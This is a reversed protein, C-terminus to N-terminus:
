TELNRSLDYSYTTQNGNFDTRSAVNGNADYTLASASAGCGSGGPQSQGTSKVVGLITQFNYTRATNLADTVTTTGDANYTLSVQEAGGAHETSIARGQSDYSYTAYRSGNEDTIGTLAHPFGTNEYHYTKSTGDPYTVSALNNNTDYAYRYVGGAPDTLTSIRSNSDYTFNLQRGLPDTVQILLDTALAITTATSADSYALTQTLGTSDAISVLKGAANYTEVTNDATTYRWGTRVNASDKLEELRDPVDADTIWVGASQQFNYAKGDNRRITVWTGTSQVTSSRTYAHTWGAGLTSSNDTTSANYYRDFTLGFAGDALDTEHQWKNGTSISIPNGAYPCIGGNNKPSVGCEGTIVNRVLPACAPANICSTGSLTGGNPCTYFSGVNRYGLGGHDSNRFM